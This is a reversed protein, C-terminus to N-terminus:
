HTQTVHTYIITQKLRELSGSSDTQTLDIQFTLDSKLSLTSCCIPIASPENNERHRLRAWLVSGFFNLLDKLKEPSTSISENTQHLFLKLTQSRIM